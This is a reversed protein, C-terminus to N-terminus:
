EGNKLDEAMLEKLTKKILNDIPIIKGKSILDLTLGRDKKIEQALKLHEKCIGVVRTKLRARLGYQATEGCVFCWRTFDSIPGSYEHFDDGIFPSGCLSSSTCKPDPLGKERGEWYHQCTACVINVGRAFALGVRVPDM